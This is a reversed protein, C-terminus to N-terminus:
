KRGTKPLGGGRRAFGNLSGFDYPCADRCKHCRIKWIQAEKDDGFAYNGCAQQRLEPGDLAHIPCAAVCLGCDNCVPEKRLDPAFEQECLGAGQRM